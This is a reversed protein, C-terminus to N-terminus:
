GVQHYGKQNTNPSVENYNQTERILLSASCRKKHGKGMWSDEKSFHRNLDETWKQNNKKLNLQTLQKYIKSILGKNNSENEFIKEWESPKM